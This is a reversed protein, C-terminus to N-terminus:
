DRLLHFGSGYGLTGQCKNRAEAWDEDRGDSGVLFAEGLHHNLVILALQVCLDYPAHETKCFGRVYGRDHRDVEFVPVTLPECHQPSAGNFEVLQPSFTPRGAGTPGALPIALSGLLQACDMAAATFADRPLSEFRKWHHTWGM